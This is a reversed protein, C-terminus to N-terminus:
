QKVVTQTFVEAEHQLVIKYLGAPWQGLDILVNNQGVQSKLVTGLMEQGAMNLIRLSGNTSINSEYSLVIKDTAPNPYVTSTVQKKLNTTGEWALVKFGVTLDTLFHNAGHLEDGRFVTM